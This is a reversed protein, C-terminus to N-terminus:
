TKGDEHSGDKNKQSRERVAQHLGPRQSEGPDPDDASGIRYNRNSILIMDDANKSEELQNGNKDAGDYYVFDYYIFISVSFM